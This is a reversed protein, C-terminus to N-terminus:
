QYTLFYFLNDSTIASTGNQKYGFILDIWESLTASVYDSEFAARM